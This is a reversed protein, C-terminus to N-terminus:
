IPQIIILFWKKLLFLSIIVHSFLNYFEKYDYNFTKWIESERLGLSEITNTPDDFLLLNNNEVIIKLEDILKELKGLRVNENLSLEISAFFNNQFTEYVEKHTKLVDVLSELIEVTEKNPM